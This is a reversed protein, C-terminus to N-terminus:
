LKRLVQLSWGVTQLRRDTSRSRRSGDGVEMAKRHYGRTRCLARAQGLYMKASVPSRCTTRARVAQTFAAGFAANPQAEASVGEAPRFARCRRESAGIPGVHPDQKTEAEIFCM